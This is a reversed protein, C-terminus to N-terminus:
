LAMIEDVISRNKLSELTNMKQWLVGGNYTAESWNYGVGLDVQFPIKLNFPSTQVDELIKRIVGIHHVANTEEIELVVSDHITLLLLVQDELNNQRLYKDLQVLKYKMIDASGGQVISNAARYAFREDPFRRRRNLITRVYGRQIAVQEALETFDSVLPFTAHWRKFIALAQEYPINLQAALKKVGMTYMIGLNLNKAIDRSVNMYQAAVGHMDIVPTSTYGKLLAPEGSYHTYLRPEAQSYDLECIIYGPRARFMRRYIKGLIKDRKPVQQKNPNSSSLRGGRTGHTEGRAQNFTTHIKDKYIHTDLTDLFSSKLHALKRANLIDLGEQTTELWKKNFSPQGDPFRVSPATMPWDTIDCMEFYSQLDKGSRINIPLFGTDDVPVKCYAEAYMREIEDVVKVREEPDVGIGRREMKQLVYALENELDRVVDLGQAYLEKKQCEWLQKTALTDTAAYEIALADNGSLRWFHALSDRTPKVNFLRGIHEYLEKGGKQIIEPYQKCVNELSFSRRNEDLLCAMTMTDIVKNGLIIGHNESFHADFKINHGVIKGKHNNVISAVRNEFKDVQSINGGLGHRVPVYVAEKGDSVSYGCIFGGKWNLGNTEVDYAPENTGELIRLFKDPDTSIEPM